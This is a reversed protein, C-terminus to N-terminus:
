AALGANFIAVFDTDTNGLFPDRAQKARDNTFYLNVTGETVADTSGASAVIIRYASGSWRYEKDTDTAIYIKGTEGSAPFASLSPFELVDDVYSPLQAAPVKGSGDLGAYGNSQGKHENIAAVLNGKATTKLASLDAANGNILVRTAKIATAIRTALDSIRTVLTSM